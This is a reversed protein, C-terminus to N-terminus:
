DGRKKQVGEERNGREQTIKGTVLGRARRGTQGEKKEKKEISRVEDVRKGEGWNLVSREHGEGLKEGRERQRRPEGNGKHNCRLKGKIGDEEWEQLGQDVSQKRL